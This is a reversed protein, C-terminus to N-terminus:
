PKAPATLRKTVCDTIDRVRRDVPQAPDLDVSCAASLLIIRQASSLIQATQRQGREYCKGGPTTCDEITEASALLKKGTPTGELQTSRIQGLLVPVTALGAVLVGILVGIVLGIVRRRREDREM